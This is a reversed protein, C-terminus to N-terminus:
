KIKDRKRTGFIVDKIHHVFTDLLTDKKVKRIITTPTYPFEVFVRSDRSTFRCGDPEEFVIGNIDYSKGNEKLVHSCRINQFMGESVELWESDEGTLPTLPEYNLVKKLISIAYSASFGSHGEESFMQVMKIIHEYMWRDMDDESDKKLGIIELEREAYKVLNGM